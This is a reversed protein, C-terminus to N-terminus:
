PTLEEHLIRRLSLTHHFRDLAQGWHALSAPLELPVTTARLCEPPLALAAQRLSGLLAMTRPSMDEQARLAELWAQGLEVSWPAGTVALARDLSPLSEARQLIRLTRAAREAPPLQELLTVALSQARDPELVKSELRSWSGLLASAWASSPGLRFAHM